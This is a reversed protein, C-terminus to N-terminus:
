KKGDFVFDLLTDAIKVKKAEMDNAQERAFKVSRLLKDVRDLMEEKEEIGIAGSYFVTNWTGVVVDEVYEKVQAPHHDSPPVVVNYQTKKKSRMTPFADTSNLNQNEDWEWKYASDLTPFEKITTKLETLKHELYLLQTIPVDTLLPQDDIVIDAKAETNTWDQVAIIDIMSTYCKKISKIADKVTMKVLQNDDPLKEGEEDIPQYTKKRGNFLDGKQLKQYIETAAKQFREKEGNCIAVIQNLKPM